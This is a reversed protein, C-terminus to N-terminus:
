MAPAERDIVAQAPECAAPREPAAFEVRQEDASM